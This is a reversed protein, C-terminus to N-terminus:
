VKNYPSVIVIDLSGPHLKRVKQMKVLKCAVNKGTSKRRESLYRMEYPSSSIM